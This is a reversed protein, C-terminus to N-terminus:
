SSMLKAEDYFPTKNFGGVMRGSVVKGGVLRSVSM